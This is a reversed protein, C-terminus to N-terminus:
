GMTYISIHSMGKTLWQRDYESRNAWCGTKAMERMDEKQWHKM